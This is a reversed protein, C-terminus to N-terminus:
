AKAGRKGNRSANVLMKKLFLGSILGLSIGAIVILSIQSAYLATTNSILKGAYRGCLAFFGAGGWSFICAILWLDAKRSYPKLLKIQLAGICLAGLMIPISLQYSPFVIRTFFPLLDFTLFPLTLGIVSYWIWTKDIPIIQYLMQWQIYGVTLGMVLGMFFHLSTIQLFGLTM